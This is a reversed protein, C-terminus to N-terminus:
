GEHICIEWDCNVCKIGTWCNGRGVHFEKGGCRKCFITKAPKHEYYQGIHFLTSVEYDTIEEFYQLVAKPIGDDGDDYDEHIGFEPHYRQM